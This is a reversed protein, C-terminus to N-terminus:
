DPDCSLGGGGVSGDFDDCPVTEHENLSFFASIARAASHIRDNTAFNGLDMGNKLWTMRFGASTCQQASGDGLLINGAGATNGVSHIRASWGVAHFRYVIGGGGSVAAYSWQGNTNVITDAGCPYDPNATTGSIGYYPDQTPHTDTGCDGLNRDGGLISQPDTDNAGAGCFYSVNTNDFTGFNTPAPSKFGPAKPANSSGFYFNTNFPREDGPCVVVKPSQGLENQMISYPLYAFGGDHASASLVEKMGGLAETQEMPYKDGQDNEWVRYATGLQKLNNVCSIRLSKARARPAPPMLMLALFGLIVIVVALDVLTMGQACKKSAKTRMDFIPLMSLAM